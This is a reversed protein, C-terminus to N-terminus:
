DINKNSSELVRIVTTELLVVLLMLKFVAKFSSWVEIFDPFM